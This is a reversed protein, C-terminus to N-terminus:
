LSFLSLFVSSNALVAAPPPISFSLFPTLEPGPHALYRLHNLIPGNKLLSDNRIMPRKMLRSQQSLSEVILWTWTCRYEIDSLEAHM